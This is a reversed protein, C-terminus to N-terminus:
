GEHKRGKAKTTALAKDQWTQKRKAPQAAGRKSPEIIVPPGDRVAKAQAREIDDGTEPAGPKRKMTSEFLKRKRRSM